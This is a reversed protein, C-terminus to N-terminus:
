IFRENIIEVLASGHKERILKAVTPNYAMNTYRSYEGDTHETLRILIHKKCQRKQHQTEEWEIVMKTIYYDSGMRWGTTEDILSDCYEEFQKGLNRDDFWIRNDGGQGDNKLDAAKKGTIWLSGTFAITEESMNAALKVGKLEVSEIQTM